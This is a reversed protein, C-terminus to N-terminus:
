NKPARPDDALKAEMVQHLKYQRKSGDKVDITNLLTELRDLVLSELRVTVLVEPAIGKSQYRLWVPRNELWASELVKQVGPDAARAPVGVFQLRKQLQVAERQLASPLAARVKDLAGKLAQTFPLLRQQELMNGVALGVGAEQATFNVPPLSYMRDLAYGGGRGRESLLPLSADRLGDLDRYITRITVGFRDALEQATVGNRRARLMEALAFLRETRNMVHVQCLTKPAALHPLVFM